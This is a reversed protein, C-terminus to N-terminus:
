YMDNQINEKEVPETAIVCDTTIIMGATSAAKELATVTVKTPDVIGTEIMNIYQRMRPDYGIHKDPPCNMWIKIPSLGANEIITNFPYAIAKCLALAGRYQDINDLNHEARFSIVDAEALECLEESIRKLVIGGGPIIGDDIAAKTANISDEIRYKKERMELETEAGIHIVSVGGCFKALREHIKEKDYDSSANDLEAKIEAARAVIHEQEGAGDIITTYKNSIKVKRAQGCDALTAKEISKGLTKSILTGGTLVAIDSLYQEKRTGFEPAKVAAVQMVGRSKNVILTALAEGDVDDAIILLSKNAVLIHELIKVIEKSTTIKGDYILIYPDDLEVKFTQQNNIFYPSLYGRNFQMGEVMELSTTATKSEEVAVVGDKGARKIADAILKGIEHDNNASITAVHELTDDTIDLKYERVKEIIKKLMKDIGRKLEISNTTNSSIYSSLVEKVIAQVLVTSTTTGDGAVDNTQTAAELIMQAGINEIPDKLKINKAVTVGDKTSVPSGYEKDFVVNKGSPGLTVKVADAVVDVGHVVQELAEKNFKIIKNKM